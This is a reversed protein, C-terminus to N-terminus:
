SNIKGKKSLEYLERQRDLYAQQKKLRENEKEISSIKPHMVQIDLKSGKALCKRCLELYLKRGIHTHTLGVDEKTLLGHCYECKEM